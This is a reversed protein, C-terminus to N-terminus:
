SPSSRRWSLGSPLCASTRPRAGDDLGVQAVGPQPQEGVVQGPSVVGGSGELRQLRVDRAEVLALHPEVGLVLRSLIPDRARLLLEGRQPVLFALGPCCRAASVARRSASVSPSSRSPADLWSSAAVSVTPPRSPETAASM